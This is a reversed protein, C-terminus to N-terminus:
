NSSPREVHDIVLVEVPGKTSELRLGLQQVASFISPNADLPIAGPPPPPLGLTADDPLFDLRVDFVGPFRTRDTVTRGLVRSLVGVFEAMPVQAGQIRAGGAELAVDLGGCRSPSTAGQGPPQMRTGPIALPGLLETDEVCGGTRPPSLKIGGRAAVLAYVPMERSERHARLQFRDELLSQLMLFMQARDPNGAARADVEYRESGIWEPGGVIQFPQLDYAGQMLTRLPANSTLRGPLHRMMAPGRSGAPKISAVEFQPRATQALVAMATIAVLAAVAAVAALPHRRSAPRPEGLLRAVRNALSGGTASVAAQYRAHGAAGVEALARAYGVPDGTAAVARDDYCLERESRMHGSVWWVAPHYFLLAEVMSQLANVLYDYRRIHALEHLLLAEIQEPPLGTLLGVPLLVVPRLLGVVAPAQVLGSVLLRVPQSMRLRARLGDFAQQWPGPAPRVQRRRLQEAVLCGGMLRMCFVVAGAMWAVTVWSLWASPVRGYGAAFFRPLDGHFGPGASAAHLAPFSATVATIEPSVPRLALWTAVPSVAMAALAACALLYRAKPRSACGRAAAYAAAILVGQWLFHLLAAGLLEIANM